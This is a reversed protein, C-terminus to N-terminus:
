LLGKKEAIWRSMVITGEKTPGRHVEEVQSFPIWLIEGTAPDEIQIANDTEHLFICALEFTAGKM